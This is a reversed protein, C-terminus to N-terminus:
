FASDVNEETNSILSFFMLRLCVQSWPGRIQVNLEPQLALIEKLHTEVMRPYYKTRAYDELDKSEHYIYNGGM